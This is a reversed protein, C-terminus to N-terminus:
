RGFGFLVPERVRELKGSKMHEILERLIELQAGLREIDARDMYGELIGLLAHNVTKVTELVRTYECYKEWLQKEAGLKREVTHEQIQRIQEINAKSVDQALQPLIVERLLQDYKMYVHFLQGNVRKKAELIKKLKAHDSLLQRLKTNKVDEFQKDDAKMQDLKYKSDLYHRLEDGEEEGNAFDYVGNNENPEECQSDKPAESEPLMPYRLAHDAIDAIRSLIGENNKVQTELQHVLRGLIDYNETNILFNFPKSTM